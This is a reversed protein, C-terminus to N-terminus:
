HNYDAQQGIEYRTLAKANGAYLGIRGIYIGMPVCLTYSVNLESIGTSQIRQRKYIPKVLINIDM